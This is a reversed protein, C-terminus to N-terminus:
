GNDQSHYPSAKGHCVMYEQTLETILNSTFQAGQGIVIERPVGFITFICKYLFEVVKQDRAHKM